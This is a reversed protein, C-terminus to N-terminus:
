AYVEKKVRIQIQRINSELIDQSQMHLQKMSEPDQYPNKLFYIYGITTTIFFFCAIFFDNAFGNICFVAVMLMGKIASIFSRAWIYAEPSLIRGEGMKELMPIVTAM